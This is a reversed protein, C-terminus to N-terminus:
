VRAELEAAGLTIRFLTGIGAESEVFIEGELADVVARVIPLGLGFGDAERDGGRYFRDFVREAQADTLGPGLDAITVEVRHRDLRSARLSIPAGGGYKVANAALNEVAQRLLDQEAAVVLESSCDVDIAAGNAGLDRAVDILLPQLRVPALEVPEAGTQARALVLLSHVLRGLRETQREILAVFRDREAPEDKAGSQLVDVASSIATLPTRLEHAANAVFEREARESRERTTIDTVVIVAVDSEAGPVGSVLYTRSPDPAVRMFTAERERDFLARAFAALSAGAFPEPLASDRQLEEALLLRARSNAFVIRADRNVAIVGEQLQELLRHLRDRESALEAFSSRLRERMANMSAALAGLEDPFDSRVEVDFQGHEIAAAAAAIRRLRRTILVAVLVGALAGVLVAIVAARAITDRLIGVTDVLDPRSAVAVVGTGVGSRLPLAASIRRRDPSTLVLRRGDSLAAELEAREPLSTYAIGRSRGPTLLGGDRGLVFVAMRRSDSARAAVAALEAPDRAAALGTAAAVANGAALEEARDRLSAEVQSSVLQAVVLATLAAVLAFALALWWRMSALRRWAM